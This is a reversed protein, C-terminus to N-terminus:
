PFSTPVRYFDFTLASIMVKLSVPNLPLSWFGHNILHTMRQLLLSKSQCQRSLTLVLMVSFKCNSFYILVFYFRKLSKEGKPIGVCPVFHISKWFFYRVFFLRNPSQLFIALSNNRLFSLKFRPVLLLVAGNWFKRTSSWPSFAPNILGTTMWLCFIKQCRTAFFGSYLQPSVYTGIKLQIM